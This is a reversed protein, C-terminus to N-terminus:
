AHEITLELQEGPYIVRDASTVEAFPTMEAQTTSTPSMIHRVEIGRALLHDTIIRRHCRWWVAESCMIATNAKEAILLLEKLGEDFPATLAYDAYNRFPPKSWGTNQSPQMEKIVGRRGGLLVVHTYAIGSDALSASLTEKNFQPNMRSFPISRVDVLHKVDNVALLQSFEEITRTSHGITWIIM